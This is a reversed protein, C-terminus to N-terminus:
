FNQHLHTYINYSRRRLSAVAHSLVTTALLYHILQNSSWYPKRWVFLALFSTPSDSVQHCGQPFIRGQYTRVHVLFLKSLTKSKRKKTLTYPCIFYSHLQLRGKPRIDSPVFNYIFRHISSCGCIIVKAKVRTGIYMYLYYYQFTKYHNNSKQNYSFRFRYDHLLLFGIWLVLSQFWFTM